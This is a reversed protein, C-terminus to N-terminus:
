NAAEAETHPVLVVRDELAATALGYKYQLNTYAWMGVTGSQSIYDDVTMTSGYSMHVDEALKTLLDNQDYIIQQDLLVRDIILASIINSSAEYQIYNEASSYGMSQALTQADVGYGQATSTLNISAYNLLLNAMATNRYEVDEMENALVRFIAAHMANDQLYTRCYERFQDVTDLQEAFYQSTYQQVWEDTLAPANVRTKSHITTTFTATRGKLAEPGEYDEPFTVTVDVTEGITRGTLQEEYNDILTGTGLQLTYNEGAGGEFPETEGELVGSFSITIIDGNETVGETIVETSTQGELLSNIFADVYEDTITVTAEDIEITSYDGLEVGNELIFPYLASSEEGEHLILRGEVFEYSYVHDVGDQSITLQSDDYTYTGSLIQGRDYIIVTGDDRFHYIVTDAQQSAAPLDSEFILNVNVRGDTQDYNVIYFGGITRAATDQASVDQAQTDQAQTDASGAAAADAVDDVFDEMAAVDPVESSVDPVDASFGDIPEVQSVNVSVDAMGDVFSDVVELEPVDAAIPVEEVAYAAGATLVVALLAAVTM